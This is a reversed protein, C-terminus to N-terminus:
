VFTGDELGQLANAVTMKTEVTNRLISDGGYTRVRTRGPAQGLRVDAVQAAVRAVAYLQTMESAQDSWSFVKPGSEDGMWCDDVTDYLGWPLPPIASKNADSQWAAPLRFEIVKARM